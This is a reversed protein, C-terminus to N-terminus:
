RKVCHAASVVYSNSIISGGCYHKENKPIYRLSVIYPFQGEKANSGGVIRWNINDDYTVNKLMQKDAYGPRGAQLIDAVSDNTPDPLRM